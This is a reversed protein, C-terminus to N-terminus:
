ASSSPPTFARSKRPVLPAPADIKLAVADPALARTAEDVSRFLPGEGLAKTVGFHELAEARARIRAARDRFRAQRRPLGRDCRRLIRAATYDIEVISSAELVVLKLRRTAREIAARLDRQFRYANLFSLPAQFASSWCARSDKAASLRRARCPWWISHGARARFDILRTRTTTWVGHLLSLLISLSVGTQVPLLGRRRGHDAVVLAFERARRRFIDRMVHVRFIRAAIFLLVGALAANRCMRSCRPALVAAAGLSWRRALLRLAAIRGGTELRRHRHAAALRRGAFAGVLGALACGAGVGLYDRDVDPARGEENPFSRSTAATQVM